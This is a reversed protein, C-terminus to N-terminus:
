KVPLLFYNSKLLRLMENYAPKPALAADRSLPIFTPQFSYPDAIGWTTFSKCNSVSLCAYLANYYNQAQVTARTAADKSAPQLGSADYETVAVRMGMGAFKGLETKYQSQPIATDSYEHMQYGVADIPVGQARLAKIMTVQFRSKVPDNETGFDNYFLIADPDAQRAAQYALAIYEPGIVRLFINDQYGNGHKEIAENVVDWEQVKGKYHTMVQTIHNQMIAILEDRTFTGNKIWDPLSADVGWVLTHGHIRMNNAQAFAVIQDGWYYHFAGQQPETEVWKLENEPTIQNFESALLNQYSADPTFRWISGASGILFQRADAAQRLTDAQATSLSLLLCALALALKRM